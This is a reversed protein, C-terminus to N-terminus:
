QGSIPFSSSAGRCIRAPTPCTSSSHLSCATPATAPPSRGGPPTVRQSGAKSRLSVEVQRKHSPRGKVEQGEDGVKKASTQGTCYEPSWHPGKLQQYVMAAMGLSLRVELSQLVTAWGRAKAILPLRQKSRSEQPKIEQM